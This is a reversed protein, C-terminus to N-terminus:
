RKWWPRTDPRRPLRLRANQTHTEVAQADGVALAEGALWASMGHSLVHEGRENWLWVAVRGVAVHAHVFALRRLELGGTDAARDYDRRLASFARWEDIPALVARGARTAARDALRAFALELDALLRARVRAAAQALVPSGAAALAAVGVGHAEALEALDAAATAALERLARDGADAPAGLTAARSLVAIRTDADALARDWAAGTDALTAASVSGRALAVHAALARPLAGSPPTSAVASAEPAPAPAPEAATPTPALARAVIQWTFARRPAEIWRAILNARSPAGPAGTLRAAVGELLFTTPTAPWAAPRAAREAIATWAGRAADDVALWEGALERVTPHWEALLEVSEILARATERDGRAAAVLGTAVVEADGVRGRKDRTQEVWGTAPGSPRCAAARAAWVLAAADPDGGSSLAREGMFYALRAAGLPAAVQEAFMEAFLPMVAFYLLPPVLWWVGAHVFLAVLGLIAVGGVVALLAAIASWALHAARRGARRAEIARRHGWVCAAFFAGTM